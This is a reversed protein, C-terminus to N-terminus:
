RRHFGRESEFRFGASGFDTTRDLQVVPSIPGDSSDVRYKYKCTRCTYETVCRGVDETTRDHMEGRSCAARCSVVVDPTSAWGNAYGLSKLDERPRLCALMGHGNYEHAVLYFKGHTTEVITMDPDQDELLEQWGDEKHFVVQAARIEAWEEVTPRRWKNVTGTLKVEEFQM